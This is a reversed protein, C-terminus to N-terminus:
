HAHHAAHAAAEPSSKSPPLLFERPSRLFRRFIGAFLALRDRRPIERARMAVTLALLFSVSLNLAFIVGIGAMAWLAAPRQLGHLGDRALALALTGTSLTVHRVDLPLGFFKGLPTTMGLMMGLALSGGYGSVNRAFFESLWRLFRRGLVRGARHEAIAQPVRHYVCFNEVWGGALSSLWLIIGTLFAYWITGSQWPHTSAIISAAKEEHLFPEGTRARWILNLTVAAIAVVTVNGMAAALQSRCTRAVQTVLQDMRQPGGSSQLATALTAGTMSPQKTALTFGFLQILIFSFGYNVGSIVGEIFPAFHALAIQIKLVLTGLTLVGGGGASAIMHFYERRGVTIYHEGTKGAREILKRAMLHMNSRLLARLSRDSLRARALECLLRFAAAVREPGPAALLLDGAREQRQLAREIGELGYVVDISIGKQELHELVAKLEERCGEVAQRWAREADLRSGPQDLRAVLLDGARPLVFFPSRPLPLARGRSRIEGSLGLGQVRAGILVFGDLVAAYLRAFTGGAAGGGDLAECVRLFLDPPLDELWALDKRSPFLRLLLASLDQDDRPSPLVRRFLRDTTEHLIGRDSPLGMEAVLRVGDSEALVAAVAAAVPLRVDPFELVAALAALRRHEAAPQPGQAARTPLPMRRDAEIVFGALAALADIRARLDTAATLTVLFGALERVRRNRRDSEPFAATVQDPLLPMTPDLCLERADTEPM